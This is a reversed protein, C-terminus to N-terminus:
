SVTASIENKLVVAGIGRQDLVINAIDRQPGIEILRDILSQVRCMQETGDISEVLEYGEYIEEVISM